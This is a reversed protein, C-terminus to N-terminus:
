STIAEAVAKHTIRGRHTNLASKLPGSEEIANGVGNKALVRIYEITRNTLALTSTRPYAGPMNAVTYHIVDGVRYVPDDHTTPKSTEICGGQDVSVDVIVSGKKMKLVQEKTVLLPAKAGTVLVAGILIDTKLVEKEICEDNSLFTKIKGAYIENIRDLKEQGRNIVTVDAGMGHAVELAGMGVAGAGLILMRAPPVGGAGTVLIGEGGQFKQLYYAGMVPAMKGAIESMPKLLPLENNAELTEYSFATINKKLLMNAADPNSALHLFTFLAQEERFLDYEPPLPEKVKVILESSGFVDEKELIEAGAEEYDKDPFGSGTGASKEILIRHGEDKLKGAGAPTIGVRYEHKKIEKPVGIIM